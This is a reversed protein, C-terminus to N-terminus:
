KTYMNQKHVFHMCNIEYLIKEKKAKATSGKPSVFICTFCSLFFEQFLTIYQKFMVLSSLFLFFFVRSQDFNLYLRYFFCSWLGGNSHHISPYLSKNSNFITNTPLQPHHVYVIVKSYFMQFGFLFSFIQSFFEM